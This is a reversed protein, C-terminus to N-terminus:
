HIYTYIYTHVSTHIAHVEEISADYCSQCMTSLHQQADENPLLQNCLSCCARSIAAEGAQLHEAMGQTAEETADEEAADAHAEMAKGNRKDIQERSGGIIHVQGQMWREGHRQGRGARQEEDRQQEEGGQQFAPQSRKRKQVRRVRTGGGADLKQTLMLHAEEVTTEMMGNAADQRAEVAEIIGHPDGLKDGRYLPVMDKPRKMYLGPKGNRSTDFIESKAQQKRATYQEVTVTQPNIKM